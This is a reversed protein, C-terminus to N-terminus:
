DNDRQYQLLAGFYDNAWQFALRQSPRSAAWGQSERWREAWWLAVNDALYVASVDRKDILALARRLHTILEEPSRCALLRQFRLESMHPKGTEKKQKGLQSGLTAGPSEARVEALVLAICAWTQLRHHKEREGEPAPLRRWLLRFGETLMAAEATDCRRLTARVGKPWPPTDSFAKLEAAPLTLRQWWCRVQFAEDVSIALLREEPVLRAESVAEATTAESM